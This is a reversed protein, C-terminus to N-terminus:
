APDDTGAPRPHALNNAVFRGRADKVYIFDPLNDILTRLLNRERALAEEALRRETTDRSVVIVKAPRGADDRSIGGVSELYRLSGDPLMFRFEARQGHGTAVTEQFVQKIRERDDPHIEAFSDAALNPEQGGFLARYSPSNYLRRDNLDWVAVLVRM